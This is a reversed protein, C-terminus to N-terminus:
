DLVLQKLFVLGSVDEVETPTPQEQSHIPQEMHVPLSLLTEPLGQHNHHLRLTSCLPLM